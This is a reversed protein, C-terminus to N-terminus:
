EAQVTIRHLANNMYGRFNWVSEVEEPQVTDLDDFARTVLEAQGPALELDVSWFRWTWPDREGELEAEIWTQGGDASVEVKTILGDAAPIAYGEIRNRGAGLTAGAVPICIISDTQLEGLMKGQSWDVNEDLVSPPFLKYDRQQYYNDSPEAQATIQALWKVSRAAIYGPVVM